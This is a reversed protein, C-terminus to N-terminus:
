SLTEEKAFGLAWKPLRERAHLWQKPIGGVGIFMVIISGVIAACTDVDGGALAVQWLAEEYDNLYESALFLALPVTDQM